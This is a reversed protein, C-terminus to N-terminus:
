ILEKALISNITSEIVGKFASQLFNLEVIVTVTKESVELTGTIGTMGHKVTVGKDSWSTKLGYKEALGEVLGRAHALAKDLGLNHERTIKVNAM